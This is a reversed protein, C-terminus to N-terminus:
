ANTVVEALKSAGEIKPCNIDAAQIPKRLAHGVVTIDPHQIKIEKAVRKGDMGSEDNETLNGDVIAVNTGLKRLHPIKELADPLDVAVELVSHGAAELFETVAERSDNDDEIYFIKAEKPM